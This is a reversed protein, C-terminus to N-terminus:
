SAPEPIEMDLRRALADVEPQLFADFRPNGDLVVRLHRTAAARNGGAFAIAAAHFRLRPDRSGLSLAQRSQRTAEEIQGVRYLNWALADHAFTTPGAALADRALAVAAPGPDHDAAFAAMEVRVDVGQELERRDIERAQAYAREAAADQGLAHLANGLDIADQAVPADALVRRLVPVADSIMGRAVLVQAQGALAPGYGPASAEATAYAQAAGNTDGTALLLQGRLAHAFAVDDGGVTSGATIADEIALIAGQPDGRLERAYSVRALAPLNPNADMMAQTERLARRYRGLENSADVLIGYATANAPAVRLAREGLTHAAEFHHQSLALM